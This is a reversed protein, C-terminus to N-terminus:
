NWTAPAAVNLVTSLAGGEADRHQNEIQDLPDDIKGMGSHQADTPEAALGRLLVASECGLITTIARSEM